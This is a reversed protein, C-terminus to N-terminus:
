ERREGADKKSFNRFFTRKKEHGAPVAIGLSCGNGSRLPVDDLVYACAGWARLTRTAASIAAHRAGHLTEIREDRDADRGMLVPERVISVM